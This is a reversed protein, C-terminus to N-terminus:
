SNSLSTLAEWGTEGSQPKDTWLFQANTLKVLMAFAMLAISPMLLLGSYPERLTACPLSRQALGGRVVPPPLPPAPENLLPPPELGVLFIFAGVM